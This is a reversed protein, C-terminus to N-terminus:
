KCKEKVENKFKKYATFTVKKTIGTSNDLHNKYHYDKVEFKGFNYIHLFQNNIIHKKFVDIITLLIKKTDDLSVNDYGIKKFESQIDRCLEKIIVKKSEKNEVKEM